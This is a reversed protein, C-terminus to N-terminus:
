APSCVWPSSRPSIGAPAASSRDRSVRCRASRLPPPRYFTFAEPELTEAVKATVRTEGNGDVLWTRGRGDPLLAVPSHTEAFHGILPRQGQAVMRRAAARPPFGFGTLRALQPLTKQRLDVRPLNNLPVGLRDAVATFAAVL